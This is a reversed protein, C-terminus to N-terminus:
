KIEAKVLSLQISDNASKQVTLPCEANALAM